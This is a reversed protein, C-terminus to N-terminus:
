LGYKKKFEDTWTYKYKEIITLVDQIFLVKICSMIQTNLDKTLTPILGRLNNFEEKIFAPNEKDILIVYYGNNELAFILERFFQYYMVFPCIQSNKYPIHLDYKRMLKWYNRGKITLYCLSHENIPNQGDCEGSTIMSCKGFEMEVFKSELFINKGENNKIVFDFSTPQQQLENFTERDCYEFLLLSENNIKLDQFNFIENLLLLDKKIIVEGLLNFLMAQSSVGNHIYDHIPFPRNEKLAKEKENIIYEYVSSLLINYRWNNRTDLIYPYKYHVNFKNNKFYEVAANNKKRRYDRFSKYLREM